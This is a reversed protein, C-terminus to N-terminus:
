FGSYDISYTVSVKKKLLKKVGWTTSTSYCGVDNVAWM